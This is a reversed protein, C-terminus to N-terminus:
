QRTATRRRWRRDGRSTPGQEDGDRGGIRAGDASVVSARAGSASALSASRRNRGGAEVSSATFRDREFSGGAEIRGGFRGERQSNMRERSASVGDIGSAGSARQSGSPEKPGFSGARRVSVSAEVLGSASDRRRTRLRLLGLAGSSRLSRLRRPGAPPRRGEPASVGDTRAATVRRMPALEELRTPASAGGLGESDLRRPARQLRLEESSTPFRDGGLEEPGFGKRARRLRLEESNFPRREVRPSRLRRTGLLLWGNRRSRLGM